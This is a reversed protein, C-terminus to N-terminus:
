VIGHSWSKIKFLFRKIKLKNAQINIRFHKDTSTMDYIEWCQMRPFLPKILCCRTYVPVFVSLSGRDIKKKKKKGSRGVWKWSLSPSPFRFMKHPHGFFHPTFFHWTMQLVKTAFDTSDTWSNSFMFYGILTFIFDQPHARPAPLLLFQVM